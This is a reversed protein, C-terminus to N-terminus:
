FFIEDSRGKQGFEWGTKEAFVFAWARFIEFHGAAFCQACPLFV